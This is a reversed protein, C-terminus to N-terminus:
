DPLRVVARHPSMDCQSSEDSLPTLIFGEVGSRMKTEAIWELMLGLDYIANSSRDEVMGGLCGWGWGVPGMFRRPGRKM